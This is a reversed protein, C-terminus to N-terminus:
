RATRFTFTTAAKPENGALDEVADQALTVHFADGPTLDAQPEWIVWWRESDYSVLGAVLGTKEGLVAVGDAKVEDPRLPESFAFVVRPRRAAVLAGSAPFHSTVSPPLRDSVGTWEPAPILNVSVYFVVNALGPPLPPPPPLGHDRVYESILVAAVVVTIVGVVVLAPSIHDLVTRVETIRGESVKLNTANESLRVVNGSDDLRAPFRVRYTGAPLGGVTWVPNLSRFVPAWDAGEKRDLEGLIGMPSPRGAHHASDDAFVEVAVGGGPGPGARSGTTRVSLCGSLSLTVQGLVLIMVTLRRRM